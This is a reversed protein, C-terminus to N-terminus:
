IPIVYNVDVNILLRIQDISLKQITRITRKTYQYITNESNQDIDIYKEKPM